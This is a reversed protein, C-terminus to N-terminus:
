LERRAAGGPGQPVRSTSPPSPPKGSRLTADPDQLTRDAEEILAVFADELSPAITEMRHVAVGSQSLAKRVAQEAAEDAVVVHLAAGFVAVEKAAPEHALSELAAMVPEAALGGAATATAGEIGSPAPRPSSAVHIELLRGAVDRQKLQQPSGLAILKGAYIMGLRDCHEAEDMYHTTVFVTVGQQAVTYILDWFSRRSVPDVGATPEDLFLVPPEHVLACGLALRQKWGMALQGTLSHARETLDAMKLIWRKREELRRAPVGYVDGYFEINEEVTLDEYLSFKQSMYGIHEKIRESQTMIDYGIVRGRGATPVLIGCLMRMTTSKGAGNPGLFGFIEGRQVSFSIGDVATFTGFRKVLGEVVVAAGNTQAQTM